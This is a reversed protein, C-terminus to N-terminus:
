ELGAGQADPKENRPPASWADLISGMQEALDILNTGPTLALPDDIMALRANKIAPLDLSALRGLHASVEAGLLPAEVGGRPPPTGPTRPKLLVIADPALAILREHDLTIWPSGENIAASAGTSVLAEHHWSGPGLAGPPDIGALLLVRGARTASERHRLSDDLRRLLAACAPSPGSQDPRLAADIGRVERRLDDITLLTTEHLTWGYESALSTLRDPLQRSGWQTFVHTPAVALLAEYNLDAQDGAVPIEPRLVMDFAHRAVIEREYGLDRVIIAVAPSLAAIRTTGTSGTKQPSPPASRGCSALLPLLLILFVRRLM